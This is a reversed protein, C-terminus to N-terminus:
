FHEESVSVPSMVCVVDMKNVTLAKLEHCALNEKIRQTSLVSTVPLERSLLRLSFTVLATM